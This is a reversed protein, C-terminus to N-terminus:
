VIKSGIIGVLFGLTAGLATIYNNKLKSAPIIDQILLYLIGGSAFTMLQATIIADNSLVYHGLLAGPIGFFSLIAFSILTKKITMGSLVLDRFANFAEPLNQLGIIIALLTAMSTNTAFVAGMAISEPVFDMMMALLTATNGGRRELYEDLFLFSIAGAVFFFVISWLNLQEMGYPILVLAVAALIIGAGFSMLTHTIEYKVPSEKIHHNFFNALLGGILITIGAIGSFLILKLLM